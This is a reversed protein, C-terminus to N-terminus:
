RERKRERKSRAAADLSVLDAPICILYFPAESSNFFMVAIHLCPLIVRNQFLSFLNEIQNQEKTEQSVNGSAAANLVAKSTASIDLM